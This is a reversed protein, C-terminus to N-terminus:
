NVKSISFDDVYHTATVQNRTYNISIKCKTDTQQQAVFTYSFRYWGNGAPVGNSLPSWSGGCSGTSSSLQVYLRSATNGADLVTTSVFMTFQYTAGPQLNFAQVTSLYGFGLYQSNIVRFARTPQSYRSQTSVVQGDWGAPNNNYWSWTGSQDAAEFDLASPTAAPLTVTAVGTTTTVTTTVHTTAVEITTTAQVTNTNTVTTSSATSTVSVTKAPVGFCSCASTIRDPPYSQTAVCAPTSVVFSTPTARKMQQPSRSYYGTVTTTASPVTQTTTDTLTRTTRQTAVIVTTAVSMTSTPTTTAVTTTSPTLQSCYAGAQSPAYQFCQVIERKCEEDPCQVPVPLRGLNSLVYSDSITYLVNGRYQRVNYGYSVDWGRSYLACFQGVLDSGAHLNYGNVYQCASVSSCADACRTANFQGSPFIRVGLYTDASGCMPVQIAVSGLSVLDSYGPVAGAPVFPGELQNYHPGNTEANLADLAEFDIGQSLVCLASALFLAYRKAM